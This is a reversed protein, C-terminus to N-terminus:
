WRPTTWWPSARPASCPPAPSPASSPACAPARRPPGAGAGLLPRRRDGPRPAPAPLAGPKLTGPIEKDTVNVRDIKDERLLALFRSMPIEVTQPSVLWSQVVSLVVAAILVYVLSFQTKQRIPRKM